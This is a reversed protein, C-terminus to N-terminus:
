RAEGWVHSGPLRGASAALNGRLEDVGNEMLLMMAFAGSLATTTRELLQLHLRPRRM